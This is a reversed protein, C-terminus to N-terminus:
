GVRLTGSVVSSIGISIACKRGFKALHLVTAKDTRPPHVPGPVRDFRRIEPRQDVESGFIGHIAWLAVDTWSAYSM